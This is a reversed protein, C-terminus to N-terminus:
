TRSRKSGVVTAFHSPVDAGGEQRNPEVNLVSLVFECKELSVSPLPLLVPPSPGSGEAAETAFISSIDLIRRCSDRATLCCCHRVASRQKRFRFLM